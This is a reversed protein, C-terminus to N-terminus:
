ENPLMKELDVMKGTWTDLIFGATATEMSKYRNEVLYLGGYIIVVILVIIAYWQKFTLKM